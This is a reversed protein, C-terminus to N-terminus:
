QNSLLPASLEQLLRFVRVQVLIQYWIFMQLRNLSFSLLRLPDKSAAKSAFAIEVIARALPGDLYKVGSIREVPHNFVVDYSFVDSPCDSVHIHCRILM